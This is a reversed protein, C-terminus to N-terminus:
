SPNQVETTESVLPGATVPQGSAVQQAFTTIPSHDDTISPGDSKVTTLVQQGATVALDALNHIAVTQQPSVSHPATALASNHAQLARVAGILASVISEINM